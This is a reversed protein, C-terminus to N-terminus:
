QCSDGSVSGERSGGKVIVKVSMKVMLGDRITIKAKIRLNYKVIVMIKVRFIILM